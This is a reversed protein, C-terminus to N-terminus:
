VAVINYRQILRQVQVIQFKCGRSTVFGQENLQKTMEIPTLGDKVMSRLMAVARMNNVNYQAKRNNIRKTTIPM